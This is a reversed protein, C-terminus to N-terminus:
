IKDKYKDKYQHFEKTFDGSMFQRVYYKEGGPKIPLVGHQLDTPFILGDGAKMKYTFFDEVM